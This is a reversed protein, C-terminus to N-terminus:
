KKGIKYKWYKGLYDEERTKIYVLNYNECIRKIWRENNPNVDYMLIIEANGEMDLPNIEDVCCVQRPEQWYLTEFIEYPTGM